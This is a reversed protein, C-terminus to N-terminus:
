LCRFLRGPEGRQLSFPGLTSSVGFVQVSLTMTKGVIRGTYTAPRREEVDDDRVPGGKEFVHTGDVTFRGTADPVPVASMTGHACDYQVTVGTDTRALEVHEGGWRGDLLSTSEAPSSASACAMASGASLAVIGATVAVRLTLSVM